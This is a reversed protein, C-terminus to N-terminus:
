RVIHHNTAAVAAQGPGSSGYTANLEYRGPRFSTAISFTYRSTQDDIRTADAIHTEAFDVEIRWDRPLALALAVL